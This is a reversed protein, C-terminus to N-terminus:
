WSGAVPGEANFSFVPILDARASAPLIAAHLNDLVLPDAGPQAYYALVMHPVYGNPSDPMNARVYVM